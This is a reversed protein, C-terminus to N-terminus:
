GHLLHIEQLQQEVVAVVAVVQNFIIDVVIQRIHEPAVVVEPLDQQAVPEVQAVLISMIIRGQAAVAVM